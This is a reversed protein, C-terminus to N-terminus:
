EILAHGAQELFGQVQLDQTIKVPGYPDRSGLEDVPQPPSVMGPEGIVEALDPWFWPRAEDFSNTVGGAVVPYAWILQVSWVGIGIILVIGALGPLAKKLPYQDATAHYASGGETSLEGTDNPLLPMRKQSHGRGIRPPDLGDGVDMPAEALVLEGYHDGVGLKDTLLPAAGLTKGGFNGGFHAAARQFSGERRLSCRGAPLKRGASTLLPAAEPQKPWKGKQTPPHVVKPGFEAATKARDTRPM